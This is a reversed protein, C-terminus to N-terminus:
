PSLEAVACAEESRVHAKSRMQKAMISVLEFCLSAGAVATVQAHDYAPAVEMVDAGVLNLDALERLMAQLERSTLGGIEPTGTGPAFAPDLVDIDISLYVPRTGVRSKIHAVCAEIGKKEIDMASIIKFGLEEDDEYDRKRYIPGRIGVHVSSDHCFLGEEAARRFPTGHTVPTEFYTDWTDLHADFHILAVPGYKKHLTRLIPLSITHDGGMVLIKRHGDIFKTVEKEVMSVADEISFPNCGIDGADVVQVASFPSVDLQPHYPRVIRSAERIASPGFRAGPRYSCGGDFPVGVIAIDYDPVDKIQPLRAFTPIGGFRPVVQADVPGVPKSVVRVATTSKVHKPKTESEVEVRNELRRRKQCRSGGPLSDSNIKGSTLNKLIDLAKNSEELFIASLLTESRISKANGRQSPQQGKAISQALQVVSKMRKTWRDAGLPDADFELKAPTDGRHSFSPDEELKDLVDTSKVGRAFLWALAESPQEPSCTSCLAWLLHETGISNHRRRLSETNAARLAKAAAVSFNKCEM